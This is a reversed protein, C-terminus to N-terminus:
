KLHNNPIVGQPYRWCAEESAILGGTQPTAQCSTPSVVPSSYIGDAAWTESDMKVSVLKQKKQKIPQEM